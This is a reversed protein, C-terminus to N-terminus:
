QFVRTLISNLFLFQFHFCIQCSRGMGKRRRTAEGQEGEKVGEGAGVTCLETVVARIRRCRSALQSLAVTTTWRLPQNWQAFSVVSPSCAVIPLSSWSTCRTSCESVQSPSLKLAVRSAVSCSVHFNTFRIREEEGKDSKMPERLSIRVIFFSVSFFYSFAVSSNLHCVLGLFPAYYLLVTGNEVSLLVPARVLCLTISITQSLNSRM